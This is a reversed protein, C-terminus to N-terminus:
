IHTWSRRKHIDWVNFYSIGFHAAIETRSLKGEAERIALVEDETLKAFGNKEGPSSERDTLNETGSIIKINGLAYPGADGYRGMCFKGKGRGRVAWKGSEQWFKWWEEFTLQWAIGRMKAAHRQQQFALKPIRLPHRQNLGQCSHNCFKANRHTSGFEKGCEACEKTFM